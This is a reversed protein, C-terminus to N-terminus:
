SVLATGYYLAVSHPGHRDIIEALRDAIEDMAQSSSIPSFSGDGERRVSSLLRKPSNHQEPIARGKPCTYGEYLPAMPDGAVKVARGDEVTVVIPCLATCIRCFSPKTEPM